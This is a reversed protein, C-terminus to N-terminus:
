NASIPSYDKILFSIAMKYGEAGFGSITGICHPAIFSAQRFVERKETHSIHIEVAMPKITELADHISVSTHTFGGANIILADYNKSHIQDILDGEHNSQFIQIQHDPFENTLSSLLQDQTFQGYVNEDRQGLLNLNPGHLILIKM